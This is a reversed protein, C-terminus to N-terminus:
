LSREIATLGSPYRRSLRQPGLHPRPSPWLRDLARFARRLTSGLPLRGPFGAPDSVITLPLSRPVPRLPQEEACGLPSAAPLRCHWQLRRHPRLLGLPHNHRLLGPPVALGSSFTADAAPWFPARGLRDDGTGVSASVHAVFRGTPASLDDIRMRPEHARFYRFDTSTLPLGGLVASDPQPVLGGLGIGPISTSPTLLGCARVLHIADDDVPTLRRSGSRDHETAPQPLRSLFDANGNKSGKRYELTYDFATLYGLWRQVRASHDGVKGINELANHDSFVRFKTGWLYGRLRKIAGIIRGPELDLPTWRRESELTARSVYVISKM